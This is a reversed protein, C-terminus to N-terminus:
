RRGYRFPPQIAGPQGNRGRERFLRGVGGFDHGGRFPTIERLTGLWNDVTFIDGEANVSMGKPSCFRAEAGAADMYGCGGAMGALTTVITGASTVGSFLVAALAIKLLPATLARSQM